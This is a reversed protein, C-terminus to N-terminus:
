LKSKYNKIKRREYMVDWGTEKGEVGRLEKERRGEGLDVGGRNGKLFCLLGGFSIL